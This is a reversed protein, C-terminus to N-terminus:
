WINNWLSNKQDYHQNLWEQDLIYCVKEFGREPAIYGHVFTCEKTHLCYAIRDNTWIQLCDENLQTVKCQTFLAINDKDDPIKDCWIVTIEQMHPLVIENGKYKYTETRM